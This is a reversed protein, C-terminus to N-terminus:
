LKEVKTIKFKYHNARCGCSRARQVCRKTFHAEPVEYFDVIEVLYSQGTNNSLMERLKIDNNETIRIM